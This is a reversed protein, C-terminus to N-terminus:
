RMAVARRLAQQAKPGAGQTVAALAGPDQKHLDRVLRRIHGELEMRFRGFHQELEHRSFRSLPDALGSQIAAWDLLSGGTESFRLLDLTNMLRARLPLFPDTAAEPLKAMQAAVDKAEMALVLEDPQPAADEPTSAPGVRGPPPPAVEVPAARLVPRDAAPRLSAFATSLTKVGGRTFRVTLRQCEQGEHQAPEAVLVEGQGWEPKSAHTILDGRSWHHAPM